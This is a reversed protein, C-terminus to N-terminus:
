SEVNLASSVTSALRDHHYLKAVKASRILRTHVPLRLKITFFFSRDAEASYLISVKLYTSVLSMVTIMVPDVFILDVSSLRQAAAEGLIVLFPVGLFTGGVSM